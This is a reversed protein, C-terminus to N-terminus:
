VHPRRLRPPATTPNRQGRTAANILPLSPGPRTHRAAHGTRRARRRSSRSSRRPTTLSRSPTLGYAAARTRRPRAEDGALCCRGALAGVRSQRAAERGAAPRTRNRGRLMMGQGRSFTHKDSAPLDAPDRFQVLWTTRAQSSTNIGSGHITLYSFLIVDGATAEIPKARTVPWQDPPLHWQGEELHELPGLRHSGAVV